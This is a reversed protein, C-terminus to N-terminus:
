ALAALAAVLALQQSAGLIDGTQGGIRARAALAVAGAALGAALAAWLIQGGALILGLALALAVAAAAIAPAPRGAAVSLGGRRAPAMAAMIVAMPARSLACAAILLAWGQPAQLMGQLASWQALVVLVLALAGHAGIRSDKMIALRTAVSDGGVLGDATDALGDEHLGGTALALTALVGAAAVGAPAGLVSLAAGALAALGGLLAGVLPWAWAGQAGRFPHAPVPIRSLLAVASLFEYCLRLATASM